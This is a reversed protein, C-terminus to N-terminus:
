TDGEREKKKKLEWARCEKLKSIKQIHKRWTEALLAKKTSDM